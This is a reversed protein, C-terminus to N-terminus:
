FVRYFAEEGLPLVIVFLIAFVVSYVVDWGNKFSPFPMTMREIGWPSFISFCILSAATLTAFILTFGISDFVKNCFNRTEKGVFWSWKFDSIVKDYIWCSFCYCILTVAAIATIADHTGKLTYFIVVPPILLLLILSLQKKM